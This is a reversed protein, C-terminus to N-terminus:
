RAAEWEDATVEPDIPEGTWVTGALEPPPTRRKNVANLSAAFGDDVPLVIVEVRSASFSDPLRITITHSVVDAIQRFVDM